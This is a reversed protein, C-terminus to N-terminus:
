DEDRDDGEQDEVDYEENKLQSDKWYNFNQLKLELLKVLSIIIFSQEDKSIGMKQIETALKISFSLLSEMKKAQMQPNIIGPMIDMDRADEAIKDMRKEFAADREGKPLSKIEQKIRKIESDPIFKAIEFSRLVKMKQLIHIDPM